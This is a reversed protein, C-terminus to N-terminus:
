APVRVQAAAAEFAERIEGWLSKPDHAEAFVSGHWRVLERRMEEPLDEWAPIHTRTWRLRNNDAELRRIRAQLAANAKHLAALEAALAEVQLALDDSM